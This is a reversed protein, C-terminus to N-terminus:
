AGTGEFPVWAKRVAPRAAIADHWREVNPYEGLGIGEKGHLHADPYTAIDAVTYADGALYESEGLRRDLTGLMDRLVAEYHKKAQPVDEPNRKWFFGYQQALTTWTASGYFLWQDVRLRKLPDDPYLGNGAKEGLYKLIAGSECLTIRQGGPGDDDVLAPIKHGPSIKLYEPAFQERQRINVPKLVYPLGSEEAGQRAKYGNDTMWTYLEIM